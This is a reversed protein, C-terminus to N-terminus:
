AGEPAAPAPGGELVRSLEAICLETSLADSSRTRWVALLQRLPGDMDSMMDIVVDVATEQVNFVQDRETALAFPVIHNLGAALRLDGHHPCRCRGDIAGITSGGIRQSCESHFGISCQQGRPHNFPPPPGGHRAAAGILRNTYADNDEGDLQPPMTPYHTNRPPEATM